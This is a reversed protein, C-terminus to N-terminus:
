QSPTYGLDNNSNQRGMTSQITQHSSSIHYRFPFFDAQSVLSDIMSRTKGSNHSEEKRSQPMRYAELPSLTPKRNVHGRNPHNGGRRSNNRQQDMNPGLREFVSKRHTQSSQVDSKTPTLQGLDLDEKGGRQKLVMDEKEVLAQGKPEQSMADLERLLEKIKDFKNVNKQNLIEQEETDREPKM